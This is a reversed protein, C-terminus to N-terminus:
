FTELEEPNEFLHQHLDCVVDNLEERDVMAAFADYDVDGNRFPTILATGCGTINLDYKM